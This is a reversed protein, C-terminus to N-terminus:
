EKGIVRIVNGHFRRGDNGEKPGAVEIAGLKRPAADQFDVYIGPNGADDQGQEYPVGCADLWPIARSGSGPKVSQWADLFCQPGDAPMIRFTFHLYPGDRTGDEDWRPNDDNLRYLEPDAEVEFGQGYLGAEPVPRERSSNPIFIREESM